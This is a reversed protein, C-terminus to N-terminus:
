AQYLPQEKWKILREINIASKEIEDEFCANFVKLTYNLEKNFVLKAEQNLFHLMRGIPHYEFFIGHGVYEHLIIPNMKTPTDEKTYAILDSPSYWGNSKINKQKAFGEWKEKPIIELRTQRPAQGVHKKSLQNLLTTLAIEQTTVLENYGM